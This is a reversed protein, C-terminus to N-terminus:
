GFRLFLARNDIASGEIIQRRICRDTESPPGYQDLENVRSPEIPVGYFYKM